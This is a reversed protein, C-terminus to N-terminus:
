QLGYGYVAAAGGINPAEERFTGTCRNDNQDGNIGTACSDETPAGVVLTNGAVAVSTGFFDYADTM